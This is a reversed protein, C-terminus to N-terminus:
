KEIEEVEDTEKIEEPEKLKENNLEKEIEKQIQNHISTDKKVEEIAKKIEDQLNQMEKKFEEQNFDLNEKLDENMEKLDEKLEMMDEEFEEKNFHMSDENWKFKYVKDDPINDLNFNWNNEFNQLWQLTDLNLKEIEKLNELNKELNKELDKMNKELNKEVEEQIKEVWVKMKEENFYYLSDSSIKVPPSVFNAAKVYVDDKFKEDVKSILNVLTIADTSKANKLLTNVCIDGCQGFDLSALAKKFIVSSNENFPTGVGMNKKTMVYNGAPVLADRNSSKIEVNGSTVYVLGDGSSDITLKYNGKLDSAVASPMEVFFTKKDSNMDAEITGYEVAIRNNGDSGKIFYIKSNPEIKVKGLSAIILEAASSDNTQIWQGEKISDASSMPMGGILPNGKVNSVKWYTPLGFLNQNALQLNETNTNKFLFYLGALVIIAAIGSLIFKYKSFSGKDTVKGNDAIDLAKRTHLNFDIKKETNEWLLNKKDLTLYTDNDSLSNLDNVLQTNKKYYDRCESCTELHSDMLEKDKLQIMGDLYEDILIETESCNLNIKNEKKM